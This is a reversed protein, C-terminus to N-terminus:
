LIGMKENLQKLTELQNVRVHIFNEIGAARLEDSCAPNGAVIFIARGGLETFAPIAYEAYEDDSSCLVVIDAKAKMAEEIGSKVDPFGLNDIVEYGACALFNCSFQARAQRMVLNGITLMFVLPRKGSKETQRRIIEFDSSLRSPHITEFPAQPSANGEAKEHSHSCGCSSLSGDIVEKGESTEIFNPFQNTGLIFERRQAALKHREENTANVSKQVIGDVITQLFGGQKEVEMFLKWAQEALSHTLTEVFYSGGAPDVVKDFHSEEKLILQQNRAIRESFDNPSAYVSDFPTVVISDVGALAASMAETQTRLMNVYSDYFTKNFETTTANVSMRCSDDSADHQKAIRAWLMRGARFKAMEMFYNSGIGMDFRIMGAARDASIGSDVLMQLYENGWSLAYALEQYCYVGANNLTLASVIVPRIQPYDGLVEALRPLMKLLPRVDKGKTLIKEMPDFGISGKVAEGLYDNSKLYDALLEALELTRGQCTRLNLEIAELSIGKLLTQLYEKSLLDRPIILGLSDVGKNLIQLLIKNTEEADGCKVNQRVFWDNSTKKNGREYPFCGPLSESAEWSKIDERRYFPQASFGENTRWVLKKNFDAGKLDVQIKDLWEQRSPVVFDSFLLEKQGAM